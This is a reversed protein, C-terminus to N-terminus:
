DTFTAAAAEPVSDFDRLPYKALVKSANEGYRFKLFTKYDCANKLPNNGNFSPMAIFFRLEDRNSGNILPVRNFKGSSFAENTTRTMVTGDVVIGTRFSGEKALIDKVSLSRLCSATQDKCGVAAAFNKGVEEATTLSPEVSLLGTSEAIGRDFLGRATPSAMNATVSVAGASEGFITVDNPDGGFAAINRQVWRLAFQQDMLGYNAVEHHEADLAPHSFFGFINLRYNITVVVTDGDRALKSGDYDNSEGDLLGGGHIWVMVPRRSRAAAARGDLPAFVNLFLCDEHNSPKAFVGLTDIQACRSGFATADIPKTWEAHRQPPRWRLEGVPPAAYPIGLFERVGKRVFGKVPGEQTTVLLSADPAAAATPTDATAGTTTALSALGYTALGGLLCRAARRLGARTAPRLDILAKM